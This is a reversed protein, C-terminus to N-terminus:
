AAPLEDKVPAENPTPCRAAIRASNIANNVAARVGAYRTVVPAVASQRWFRFTDMRNGRQPDALDPMVSKQAVLLLARDSLALGIGLAETISAVFVDLAEVFARRAAEVQTNRWADLTSGLDRMAADLDDVAARERSRLGTIRAEHTLMTCQHAAVRKRLNQDPQAGDLAVAGENDALNAFAKRFERDAEARDREADGIRRRLDGLKEKSQTLRDIALQIEQPLASADVNPSGEEVGM